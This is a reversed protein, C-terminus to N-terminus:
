AVHEISRQRACCRCLLVHSYACGAARREGSPRGTARHDPDPPTVVHARDPPTLHHTPVSRLARASAGRARTDLPSQPTRTSTQTRSTLNPRAKKNRRWSQCSLGIPTPSTSTPRNTYSKHESTNHLRCSLPTTSRPSMVRAFMRAVYWSVAISPLETRPSKDLPRSAHM